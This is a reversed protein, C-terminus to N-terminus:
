DKFRIFDTVYVTKQGYSQTLEFDKGASPSPCQEKDGLYCLRVGKQEVLKTILHFHQSSVMSSEDLIILTNELTQHNNELETLLDKAFLCDFNM